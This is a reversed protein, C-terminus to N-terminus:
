SSACLGLCGCCISFTLGCTQLAPLEWLRAAAVARPEGSTPGTANTRSKWHTRGRWAWRTAWLWCNRCLAISCFVASLVRLVAAAPRVDQHFWAVDVVARITPTLFATGFVAVGSQALQLAMRYYNPHLQLAEKVDCTGLYTIIPPVLKWVRQLGELVGVPVPAFSHKDCCVVREANNSLRRMEPGAVAVDPGTTSIYVINVPLKICGRLHEAFSSVDGACVLLRM